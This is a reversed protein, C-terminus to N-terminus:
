RRSNHFNTAWIRPIGSTTPAEGSLEAHHTGTDNILTERLATEWKVAVEPATEHLSHGLLKDARQGLISAMANNLRTLQLEQDFTCLGLPAHIYISELELDDSRPIPPANIDSFTTRRRKLLPVILPLIFSPVLVIPAWLPVSGITQQFGYALSAGTALAVSAITVAARKYPAQDRSDYDQVPQTLLSRM